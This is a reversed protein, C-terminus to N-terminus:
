RERTATGNEIRYVIDCNEITSLRHAIILITIDGSLKNIAEVIAHETEGDLSSTAEDMVLFQPKNYLARAIGIRQRQGGSLRVGNEGTVTDLGEPLNEVFEKMQARELCQWVWEDDITGKEEGFAVNARITDDCLYVFQPIYGLLSSWWEPNEAIDKGDALVRGKTPKHLGLIIDALTTKGSGTTGVFAVSKKAPITLNLDDYLADQAEDYKFGIHSLEVGEQLSLPDHTDTKGPEGSGNQPLNELEGSCVIEYICKISPRFYNMSNIVSTLNSVIPIMRMAAIAFAAFMPLTDNLDKGLLLEVLVTGFVLLMIGTDVLIKPMMDIGRYSSECDASIEALEQYRDVYFGQKRKVLVNKLGGLSQAVWAFTDTNAKHSLVSYKDIKKKLGIRVWLLFAAMLAFLVGTLVVNMSLLVIVIGIVTLIYSASSILSGLIMFVRFVDNNVLQQTEATNHTLHWAYPKHMVNSFLRTALEARYDAVKREQWFQYLVKCVGRVIYLVIFGVTLILIAHNPDTVGFYKEMAKGFMSDPYGSINTMLTMFPAMLAVTVTDLLALFLAAFMLLFIGRRQPRTLIHWIQLLVQKM